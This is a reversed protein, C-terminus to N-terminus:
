AANGSWKLAIQNLAPERPVAPGHRDLNSALGIALAVWRVQLRLNGDRGILLVSSLM